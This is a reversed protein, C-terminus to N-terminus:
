SYMRDTENFRILLSSVKGGSSSGNLASPKDVVPNHGLIDNVHIFLNSKPPENMNLLNKVDKLNVGQREGDNVISIITGQHRGGEKTFVM